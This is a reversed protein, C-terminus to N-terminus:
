RQSDNSATASQSSALTVFIHYATMVMLVLAAGHELVELTTENLSYASHHYFDPFTKLFTRVSLFLGFNLIMLLSFQWPFIPMFSGFFQDVPEYAAAAVPIALWVAFAFTLFLNASSILSLPFSADDGKGDIWKLNHINTESQRNIDRILESDGTNFIRQGWSIEEGAFIFFLLALVLYSRRRLVTHTDSHYNGSRRYALIYMLATFFFFVASLTELIKDEKTFLEILDASLFMPVYTLALIVGLPLLIRANTKTMM